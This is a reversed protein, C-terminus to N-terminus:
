STAELGLVTTFRRPNLLASRGIGAAAREVPRLRSARSASAFLRDITHWGAYATAREAFGADVVPRAQRYSRWFSRVVPMLRDISGAARALVQDHTLHEAPAEQDGRGTVIDLVARYLWEGAFAGVDRAGDGLHFDEWDTLYTRDVGVLVQDMRVDGHTPVRPAAVADQQLRVVAPLLERDAQLLQLVQIDAFSLDEFAALPVAQLVTAAPFPGRAGPVDCGPPVTTSHLRGVLTGVEAATAEDFAEEVVLTAGDRGPVAEYALLGSGADSAVLRPSLQEEADWCRDSLLQFLEQRRVRDASEPGLIAKVFVSRATTTSGIWVSNRGPLSRVGDPVFTGLGARQMFAALEPALAFDNAAWTLGDRVPESSEQPRRSPAMTVTM